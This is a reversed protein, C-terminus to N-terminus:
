LREAFAFCSPETLGDAVTGPLTKQQRLPRQYQADVKPTEGGLEATKAHNKKAPSLFKANFTGRATYRLWGPGSEM